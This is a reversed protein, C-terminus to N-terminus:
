RRGKKIFRGVAISAALLGLFLGAVIEAILTALIIEPNDPFVAIPAFYNIVEQRWYFLLSFIVTWGLIPGLLGYFIGELLFPAKIYFGAAGLSRLVWIEGKHASIKLSIIIVIVMMSVFTMAGVFILGGNRLAKIWFSLNKAVDERFAVEEVIETDSELVTVVDSLYDPDIASIELSAPLISASVMELLLPNDQNQDQYIKLADDKSVFRVEKIGDMDEINSKLAAVQQSSAEDTLYISIEPRSQFYGLLSNFIVVIVIFVSVMVFNLWMILVAASSQLPSRRINHWASAWSSIRKRSM